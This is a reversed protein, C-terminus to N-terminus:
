RSLCPASKVREDSREARQVRRASHFVVERHECDRAASAPPNKKSCTSSATRSLSGSPSAVPRNASCSRCSPSAAPGAGSHSVTGNPAFDAPVSPRATLPFTSASREAARALAASAAASVTGTVPAARRTAARAEARSSPPSAVRAPPVYVDHDGDRAVPRLAPTPLRDSIRVRPPPSCRSPMAPRPPASQLASAPSSSGPPTATSRRASSIKAAARRLVSNSRAIHRRPSARIASLLVIALVSFPKVPLNGARVIDHADLAFQYYHATPLPRDQVNTLGNSVFSARIPEGSVIIPSSSCTARRNKEAFTGRRTRIQQLPDPRAHRALDVRCEEIWKVARINHLRESSLIRALDTPTQRLDSLHLQVRDRDCKNRRRCLLHSFQEDCEVPSEGSGVIGILLM